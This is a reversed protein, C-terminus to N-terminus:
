QQSVDRSRLSFAVNRERNLRVTRELDLMALPIMKDGAEQTVCHLQDADLWYDQALYASSNKLVLVTAAQNPPTVPQQTLQLARDQQLVPTQTVYASRYVQPQPSSTHLATRFDVPLVESNDRQQQPAYSPGQMSSPRVWSPSSSSARLAPVEVDEMLRMTIRTEGKLTPYPGRRPLLIVKMPWLPPLLWEVSDRVPHGRGHIKGDRDVKYHPTSILKASLPLVDPGPLIIRDFDVEIWGKGWFHGPDKYDQLRGSLYAGRPFVPRGFTAASSLHCLVPDGVQATKSSFNPEDMTCQLLTGAPLFNPAPQAVTAVAVLCLILAFFLLLFQRRMLGKGGWAATPVSVIERM